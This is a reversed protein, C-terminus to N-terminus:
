RIILGYYGDFTEAINGNEANIKIVETNGSPKGASNKYENLKNTIIYVYLKLKIDFFLEPNEIKIGDKKFNEVAIKLALEKSIFNSEQNKWLFNPIFELSITEILNLKSDLKVWTGGKIGDIKPYKFHYHIWIEDIQKKLKKDYKFKGIKTSNDISYKYYSGDSVTFFHFLESNINKSLISDSAKIVDSTKLNQAHNIIFSFILLFIFKQRM